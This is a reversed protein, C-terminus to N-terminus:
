STSSGTAPGPRSPTRGSRTSGTPAPQGPSRSTDPEAQSFPRLNFLLAWWFIADLDEHRVLANIAGKDRCPVDSVYLGSTEGPKVVLLDLLLQDMTDASIASLLPAAASLYPRIDRLFVDLNMEREDPMVEYIKRLAKAWLEGAAQQVVKRDPPAGTRTYARLAQYIRAFDSSALPTTAALVLADHIVALMEGGVMSALIMNLRFRGTPELAYYTYVGSRGWRTEVVGDKAAAEIQERTLPPAKGRGTLWGIVSM